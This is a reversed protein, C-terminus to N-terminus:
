APWLSSECMFAASIWGMAQAVMDKEEEEGEESEEGGMAVFGGQKLGLGRGKRLTRAAYHALIYLVTVVLISTLIISLNLLLNVLFYRRKRNRSPFSDQQWASLSKESNFSPRGRIPSSPLQSRHPGLLPVCEDRDVAKLHSIPM